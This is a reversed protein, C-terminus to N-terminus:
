SALVAGTRFSGVLTTLQRSQDRLSEAAAASEEVLAANQQTMQDLGAVAGNVQALGTSQETTAASIEAIIDTVRQVSAVIEGMTHGADTVLRSGTGVKEVSTGILAKIERAADASRQALSRVESAVVAFGRGQEGARAAEVAATLALINTQFAIGDITGIIDAIRKSATNIEGMTLVVQAVVEGGRIAVTSASAALQNATRASDATQGVTGTLQELSSAAQQLSGATQETRSSLDQNGSAIQESATSISDSGARVDDIIRRLSEQMSCLARQMDAIEDQGEVEIATTLDGDAMTQLALRARALPVTVSRQIAWATGIALLAMLVCVSALLVTGTSISQETAAILSDNADGELAIFALAAQRSEALLPICQTRMMEAAETRKGSTYLAVIGQAVPWYRAEIEKSKQLAAQEQPAAGTELRLALSQLASDIQQKAKTINDTFGQAQKADDVILLNRAAIARDQIARDLENVLGVKHRVGDSLTHMSAGISRQQQIAYVTTLVLAALTLGFGFALRTGIKIANLKM